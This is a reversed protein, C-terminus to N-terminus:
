GPEPKSQTGEGPTVFLVKAGRDVRATHWHGKPVVAFDGPATLPITEDGSSTRVVFTVDGSLLMVLEDGAPHMEWESWDASFEHCSVLTCGRFDGYATDLDQYLTPTVEVLDILLKSTLVPFTKTINGSRM